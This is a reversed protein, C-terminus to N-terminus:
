SKIQEALYARLALRLVRSVSTDRDEVLSQLQQDMETSIRTARSVTEDASAIAPMPLYTDVSYVIANCVGSIMLFSVM